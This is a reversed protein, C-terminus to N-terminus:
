LCRRMKLKAMGTRQQGRGGEGAEGEEWETARHRPLRIIWESMTQHKPNIKEQAQQEANGSVWM